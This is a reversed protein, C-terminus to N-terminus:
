RETDTSSGASPLRTLLLFPSSVIVLRISYRRVCIRGDKSYSVYMRTCNCYYSSSPILNSQIPNSQFPSQFQFQFQSQFQLLASCLLSSCPYTLSSWFSGNQPKRRSFGNRIDVRVSSYQLCEIYGDTKKIRNKQLKEGNKVMNTGM